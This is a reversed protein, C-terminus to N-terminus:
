WTRSALKSHLLESYIEGKENKYGVQIEFAGIRSNVDTTSSTPTINAKFNCVGVRVSIRNSHFIESITLLMDNAQSQYQEPKHRTTTCHHNCNHCYEISIILDSKALQNYINFNLSKKLHKYNNISQELTWIEKDKDKKNQDRADKQKIVWQNASHETGASPWLPKTPSAPREPSSPRILAVAGARGGFGASKPRPKIPNSNVIEDIDNMNKINNMAENRKQELSIIEAESLMIKRGSKSDYTYNIPKQNIPVQQELQQNNKEIKLHVIDRKSPSTPRRTSPASSPRKQRINQLLERDAKLSQELTLQNESNLINDSITVFLNNNKKSIKKLKKKKKVVPDSIHRGSEINDMLQANALDDENTTRLRSELIKIKQKLKKAENTVVKLVPQNNCKLDIEGDKGNINLSFKKPITPPYAQINEANNNNTNINLNKINHQKTNNNNNNNNIDIDNKKLEKEKEVKELWLRQGEAFLIGVLIGIARHSGECIDRGTIQKLVPNRTKNILGDIVLQSDISRSDIDILGQEISIDNTVSTLLPLTEKYIGQYARIFISSSLDRFKKLDMSRPDYGAAKVVASAKQAFLVDPRQEVSM